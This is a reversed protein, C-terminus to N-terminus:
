SFRDGESAIDRWPPRRRPLTPTSPKLRRVLRRGARLLLDVGYAFAPLPDDLRWHGDYTRMRLGSGIRISRFSERWAVAASQPRHAIPLGLEYCYALYPLNFGNLTAIEEQQDTRGVTPEIIVFRGSRADWKFELSGLGEYQTVDLFKETLPRLAQEAEPSPVCIATSGVQPPYAALKRGFFITRSSPSRGSHFLTFYISSDPGEIWEQVVPTEGLKLFRRCTSAADDMTGAVRLREVRELHVPLKDAPKIIVPLGLEPIKALDGEQKVIVTRPVPLGHAAAFNQFTEKNGLAAVMQRSPLRLYYRPGLEARHNSVTNVALEDTLILVPRRGITEQLKLLGDVLPRGHTREVFYSNCHRSWMAPSRLTADVVTTPVGCAALSRVVGLGNVQAGVVVAPTKGGRRRGNM